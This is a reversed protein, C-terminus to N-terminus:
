HTAKKPKSQSARKLGYMQKGSKFKLAYKSKGVYESDKKVDKKKKLKKRKAM